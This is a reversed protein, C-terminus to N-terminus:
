CLRFGALVALWAFYVASLALGMLFSGDQFPDAIWWHDPRTLKQITPQFSSTKGYRILLEAWAEGDRPAGLLLQRLLRSYTRERVVLATFRWLICVASLWIFFAIFIIQGPPQPKDEPWSLGLVAVSISALAPSVTARINSYHREWENSQEYEAQLREDDTM